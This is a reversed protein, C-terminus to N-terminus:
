QGDGLCDIHNYTLVTDANTLNFIDIGVTTKMRGFRLVKAIRVDVENVRDGWVEGPKVLNLTM